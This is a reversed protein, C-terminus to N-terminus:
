FTSCAAFLEDNGASWGDNGGSITASQFYVRDAGSIEFVHTEAATGSTKIQAATGSAQTLKGWTGFAHSYAWIVIGQGNAHAADKILVHLFRQNETNHGHAATTPAATETGAGTGVTAETTHSGAINKPQRTRGWSTNIFQSM